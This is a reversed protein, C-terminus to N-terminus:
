IEVFGDNRDQQYIGDILGERVAIVERDLYSM